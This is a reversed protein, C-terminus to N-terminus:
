CEMAEPAKDPSKMTVAGNERLHMTAVLDGPVGDDTSSYVRSFKRSFTRDLILDTSVWSRIKKHYIAKPGAENERVESTLIVCLARSNAIGALTPLAEEFLDRGWLTNDHRSMDLVRTIPDVVILRTNHRLRNATDMIATKAETAASIRTLTLNSELGGYYQLNRKLYGIFGPKGDIALWDVHSSRTAKAAIAAALLTKGSGASGSLHILGRTDTLTDLYNSSLQSM